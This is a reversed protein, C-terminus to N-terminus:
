QPRVVLGLTLTLTVLTLIKAHMYLDQWQVYAYWIHLLLKFYIIM